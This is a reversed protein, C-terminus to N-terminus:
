SSPRSCCPRSLVPAGDGRRRGLGHVEQVHAREHRRRGMAKRPGREVEAPQEALGDQARPAVFYLSCVGLDADIRWVWPTRGAIVGFGAESKLVSFMKQLLKLRVRKTGARDHVEMSDPRPTPSWRLLCGQM